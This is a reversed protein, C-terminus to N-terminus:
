CPRQPPAELRTGIDEAAGEAGPRQWVLEALDGILGVASAALTGKEDVAPDYSAITLGAIRTSAAVQEAIALVHGPTLGGPASFGNAPGFLRPDLVDLDIHIYSQVAGSLFDHVTAAYKRSKVQEPSLFAVRNTEVAHAEAPDLARGGVLMFSAGPLPRFGTLQGAEASHCWGLLTAAAMGDLFGSSSTTPTNLDGHADFWVMRLREAGAGAAAGVSMFCNGALVIPLIGEQLAAGVAHSVQSALEMSHALVANGDERARLEAISVQFGRSELEPQLRAALLAHPGEGMRYSRQGSDYPVTILHLAKM